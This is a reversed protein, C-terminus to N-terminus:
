SLVREAKPVRTCASTPVQPAYFGNSFTVRAFEGANMQGEVTGRQTMSPTDDIHHIGLRKMAQWHSRVEDLDITVEDGKRFPFSM